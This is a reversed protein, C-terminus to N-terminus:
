SLLWDYWRGREDQRESSRNNARAISQNSDGTIKAIEINATASGLDTFVDSVNEGHSKHLESRVGGLAALQGGAASTATTFQGRSFSGLQALINLDSIRKSFYSQAFGQGYEITKRSQDGSLSTGVASNQLARNGQEFQFNYGPTKTLESTDYENKGVGLMDAIKGEAADSRELIGGHADNINEYSDLVDGRATDLSALGKNRGHTLAAIGGTSAEILTDAGPLDGAATKAGELRQQYFQEETLPEGPPPLNALGDGAPANNTNQQTTRSSSLSGLVM